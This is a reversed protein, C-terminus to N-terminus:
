SDMQIKVSADVSASISINPTFIYNFDIYEKWADFELTLVSAEPSCLM